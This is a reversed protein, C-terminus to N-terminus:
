WVSANVEPARQPEGFCSLLPGFRVATLAAVICHLLRRKTLRRWDRRALRQGSGDFLGSDPFPLPFTASAPAPTGRSPPMSFSAGFTTRSRVISRPLAAANGQEQRRNQPAFARRNKNSPGGRALYMGSPPNERWTIQYALHTRGNHLCAQELFVALLALDDKALAVRDTPLADFALTVQDSRCVSLRFFVLM